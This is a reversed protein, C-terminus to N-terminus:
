PRPPPPNGELAQEIESEVLSREGDLLGTDDADVVAEDRGDRQNVDSDM